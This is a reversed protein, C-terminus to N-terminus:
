YSSSHKPAVSYWYGLQDSPGQAWKSCRHMQGTGNTEYPSVQTPRAPRRMPHSLLVHKFAAQPCDARYQIGTDADPPSVTPSNGQNPIRLVQRNARVHRQM